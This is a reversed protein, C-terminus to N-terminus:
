NRRKEVWIVGSLIFFMGAIAFVTITESLVMSSAILTIIPIIYVYNTTKIAGLNKVAVNWFFYCFLSAAVGLFLINLYVVPKSLIRIDTTLPRFMFVPLITLIGYIFVKRTIFSIPYRNSVQKLLITYFAWSLAACFSLLDGLPNLRLVFKGNFVVFAVGLLALFSGQILRRSLREGKLFIHSLIATLLPAACVILSVNSAQTIQIAYNETLFYVSGGAIGLLIFTIEDKWSNAFLRNKGLFWIGSYALVFRYLFIDEPSLGNLLLVKTSIFTTGWIMIIIFAILHYRSDEVFPNNM